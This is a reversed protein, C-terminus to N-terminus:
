KLAVNIQEVSLGLGHKLARAVDVANFMSYPYALTEFVKDSSIGNGMVNAIKSANERSIAIRKM